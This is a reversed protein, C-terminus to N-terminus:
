ARGGAQQPEPALEPVVCAANLAEHLQVLQAATSLAIVAPEKSTIGPIGIPCILTRIRQEPLGAQRLRSEFRARKSASGILGVHAVAPNALAAATVSLDLAHSHSMVLALSAPSATELVVEPREPALLTVNGPVHRPFANPRPDIWTVAFPLPALALVLARGVHGAGFLFLSRRSDGFQETLALGPLRGSMDFPGETERRALPRIRDLSTADFVETALKVRGGCCQGLEPGLAHSSFSVGAAKGLAAQARALAQWELTGGGITGHFGDRTVILRAGAERPASGEVSAVTVMVAGGHAEVAACITPWVKM